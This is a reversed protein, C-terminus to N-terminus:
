GSADSELMVRRRADVPRDLTFKLKALDSPDGPVELGNLRVDVRRRMGHREAAALVTDVHAAVAPPQEVSVPLPPEVDVVGRVNGSTLTVGHPERVTDHRHFFTM